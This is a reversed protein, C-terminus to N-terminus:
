RGVTITVFWGRRGEAVDQDQSEIASKILSRFWDPV